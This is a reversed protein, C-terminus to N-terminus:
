PNVFKSKSFTCVTKLINYTVRVAVAFLQKFRAFKLFFM